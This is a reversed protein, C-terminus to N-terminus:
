KEVRKRPAAQFLVVLNQIEILSTAICFARREAASDAILDDARYKSGFLVFFFAVDEFRYRVVVVNKM